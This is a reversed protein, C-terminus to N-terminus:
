PATCGARPTGRYCLARLFFIRMLFYLNFRWPFTLVVASRMLWLTLDGPYIYSIWITPKCSSWGACKASFSSLNHKYTNLAIHDTYVTIHTGELYHRWVRVSTVLALAEKDTTHWNREHNRLKRSEFAIVREKSHKDVQTLMM